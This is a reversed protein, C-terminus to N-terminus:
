ARAMLAQPKAIYWRWKWRRSVRLSRSGYAGGVARRISSSKGGVTFGNLASCFVKFNDPV